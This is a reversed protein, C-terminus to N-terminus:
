LQAGHLVSNAASGLLTKLGSRGHSGVVILDVHESEAFYHLESAARGIRTELQAKLQHRAALLSMQERARAVLSDTVESLDLPIDRWLCLWCARRCAHAHTPINQPSALARQLM